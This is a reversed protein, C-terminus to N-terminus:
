PKNGADQSESPAEFAIRPTQELFETVTAHCQALVGHPVLDIHAWTGTRLALRRWHHLVLLRFAIADQQGFATKAAPYAALADILAQANQQLSEPVLHRACWHPLGQAASRLVLTNLEIDRQTSPCLFVERTVAIAPPAIAQEPSVLFQWGDPYKVDRRYIDPTAARTQERGIGSLAYVAERGRRSADIWGDSKLRHLAVRITDPRVGIHSLLERIEAGTLNSGDLDGFLTVILSWTKITERKALDTVLHHPAQLSNGTQHTLQNGSGLVASRGTGM